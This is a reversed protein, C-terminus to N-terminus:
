ESIEKRLFDSVSGSGGGSLYAYYRLIYSADVATVMGDGNVDAALSEEATLVTSGSARAAYEKLALVADSADFIGSKDVDGAERDSVAIYLSKVHDKDPNVSRIGGGPLRYAITCYRDPIDTIYYVEYTGTPISADANVTFCALPYSDSTEGSLALPEVQMNSYSACMFNSGNKTTLGIAEPIKFYSYPATGVETIPDTLENLTIYESDCQWKAYIQGTLVAEDIYYSSTRVKVGGNAKERNVYVRNELLIEANEASTPKFYLSPKYDDPVTAASASFSVCAASVAASILSIIKKM